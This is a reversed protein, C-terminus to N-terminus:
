SCLRSGRTAGQPLPPPPLLALPTPKAPPPLPGTAAHGTPFSHLQLCRLLRGMVVAGGTLWGGSELLGRLLLLLLDSEISREHVEDLVVHTTGGLSPDGLLRRLLIGAPLQCPCLRHTPSATM